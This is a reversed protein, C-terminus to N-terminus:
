KSGIFGNPRSTSGRKSLENGLVFTERTPTCSSGRCSSFDSPFSSPIGPINVFAEDDTKMVHTYKDGFERGVLKLFELAMGGNLNEQFDLHIIDHFSSNEWQIITHQAAQAKGPNVPTNVNGEVFIVDV